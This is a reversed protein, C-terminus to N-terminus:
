TRLGLIRRAKTQSMVGISKRQEDTLNLWTQYLVIGIHAREQTAVSLWDLHGLTAQEALAALHETTEAIWIELETLATDSRVQTALRTM